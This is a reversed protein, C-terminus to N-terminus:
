KLVLKSFLGMNRQFDKQARRSFEKSGTCWEKKGGKM